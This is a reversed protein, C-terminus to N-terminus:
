SSLELVMPVYAIGKVETRPGSPEFGLRMYFPMAYLTSNVTFRQPTGASAAALKAHRWLARAVGRGQYEKAVFLHYLHAANQIAIAGAIRSGDSKVFYLFENSRIYSRIAEASISDLFSEAGLGSPHAVFYPALSTILASIAEADSPRAPRIKM